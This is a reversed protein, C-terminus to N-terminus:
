FRSGLVSFVGGHGVADAGGGDVFGDFFQHGGPAM